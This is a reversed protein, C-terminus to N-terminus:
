EVDDVHEHAFACEVDDILELAAADGGAHQSQELRGHGGCTAARHQRPGNDRSCVSFIHALPHSRSASLPTVGHCLWECQMRRRQGIDMSSIWASHSPQVHADRGRAPMVGSTCALASICELWRGAVDWKVYESHMYSLM